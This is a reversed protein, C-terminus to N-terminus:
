KEVERLASVEGLRYRKGVAKAITGIAELGVFNALGAAAGYLVGGLWEPRVANFPDVTIADFVVVGVGVVAGVLMATVAVEARGDIWAFARQNRLMNTLTLVVGMLILPNDGWDAVTDWPIGGPEQALAAGALLAALTVLARRM